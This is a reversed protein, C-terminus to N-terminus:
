FFGKRRICSHRNGNADTKEFATENELITNSITSSKQKFNENKRLKPFKRNGFIRELKYQEVPRGLPLKTSPKGSTQLKFIKKFKKQMLKEASTM